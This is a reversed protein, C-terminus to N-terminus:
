LLMIFLQTTPIIHTTSIVFITKIKAIATHIKGGCKYIVLTVVTCICIDIIVYLIYKSKMGSLLTFEINKLTQTLVVAVSIM